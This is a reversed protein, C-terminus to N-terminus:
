IKIPFLSLLFSFSFFSVRAPGASGAWSPPGVPGAAEVCVRETESVEVRAGGECGDEEELRRTRAQRVMQAARADRV